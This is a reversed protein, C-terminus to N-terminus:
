LFQYGAVLALGSYVTGRAFTPSAEFAASISHRSGRNFVLGFRADLALGLETRASILVDEVRGLGAGASIWAYPALWVQASPGAFSETLWEGSYHHHYVGAVRVGVALRHNVFWGVGLNPGALSEQSGFLAPESSGRFSGLGLGAEVTLGHHHRWLSPPPAPEAGASAPVLLWLALALTRAM